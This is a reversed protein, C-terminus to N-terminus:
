RGNLSWDYDLFEININGAHVASAVAPDAYRAVFAPITGAAAEFDERSRKFISSLYLTRTTQDLRNRGIDRIFSRAADDLQRDLDAARYAELRLRPCGRSACVIAFHIRPERFTKRLIEHEIDNLSMMESRLAPLEIFSTQFAAGPLMGISQISHVPYHDLMLQLTSANYANIWFALKQERSWKEYDAHCM